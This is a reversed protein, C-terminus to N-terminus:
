TLFSSLAGEGIVGANKLHGIGIITRAMMDNVNDRTINDIYPRFIKLNTVPLQQLNKLSSVGADFEDVTRRIGLRGIQDVISHALAASKLLISETIEREFSGPALANDSLTVGLAAILGRQSLECFSVNMSIVLEEFSLQKLRQLVNCVRHFLWDGFPVILGNEEAERLFASPLLVGQQPHRWRLLAQAGLIRGTKLSVKPQFVLFM